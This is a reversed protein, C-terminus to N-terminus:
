PPSILLDNLAGSRFAAVEVAGADFGAAAVVECLGPVAAAASLADAPVEIRARRGGLDRVRLDAVEVGATGLRARVAAEARDIRALRPGSIRLGYVVRSALCPTAPKDWTPLSWHRSLRRVRPKTLGASLLPTLVGRESGARIGPRFPDAADDANTGTAVHRFGSEAALRGISDLVESKCFYCRDPGNARYGARELERTRPTRHTVRLTAALEAARELEGSALSESVATVALVNAAGLARVAAALVLASDAGGSFAVAVSERGEFQGLLEAADVEVDSM